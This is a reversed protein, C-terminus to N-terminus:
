NSNFGGCQRDDSGSDPAEPTQTGHLIPPVEATRSSGGPCEGASGCLCESGYQCTHNGSSCCDGSDTGASDGGCENQITGCSKGDQNGASEDDTQVTTGCQKPTTNESSSDFGDGSEDDTQVTTGCQKQTSDGAIGTSYVQTDEHDEEQNDITGAILEEIEKIGDLLAAKLQLLNVMDTGGSPNQRFKNKQHELYAAVMKVGGSVCKVAQTDTTVKAALEDDEMHWVADLTEDFGPLSPQNVDFGHAPRAFATCRECDPNSGHRLRCLDCEVAMRLQDLPMSDIKNVAIFSEVLAMGGAVALRHLALLKDGSLTILRRYLVKNEFALDLLQGVQARHYIECRSLGTVEDAWLKWEKKPMVKRADYLLKATTLLDIRRITSFGRLADSIEDLSFAEGRIVAREHIDTLNM